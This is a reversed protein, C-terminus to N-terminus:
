QLTALGYTMGRAAPLGVGGARAARCQARM